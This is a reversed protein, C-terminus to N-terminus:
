EAYPSAKLHERIAKKLAERNIGPLSIKDFQVSPPTDCHGLCECRGVRFGKKKDQFENQLEKVLEDAGARICLPSCCVKIIHGSSAETNFMSYYQVIGSIEAKSLKFHKAAVALSDNDLYHAPNADQLDHLAHLLYERRQPYRALIVPIDIKGKM